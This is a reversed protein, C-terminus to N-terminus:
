HNIGSSVAEKSRALSSYAWIYAVAMLADCITFPQWMGPLSQQIWYYGTVSCYSVKLLIGYIILHRNARPNRAIQWFMLAFILLLGAPFQVYGLHNPPPVHFYEFVQGPALLFILGLLGDYAASLYFLSAILNTSKM